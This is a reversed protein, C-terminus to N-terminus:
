AAVHVIDGVDEALADREDEELGLDPAQIDGAVAVVQPSAAHAADVESRLGERLREDALERDPARVLAYVTRDTRELYRTLVERGLFGTAGTLLLGNV